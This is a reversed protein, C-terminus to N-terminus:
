SESWCECSWCRRSHCSECINFLHWRAVVSLRRIIVVAITDQVFHRCLQWSSQQWHWGSHRRWGGHSADGTCTHCCSLRTPCWVAVVLHDCHRRLLRVISECSTGCEAGRSDTAKCRCAVSEGSHFCPVDSCATVCHVSHGLILVFWDWIIFLNYQLWSILNSKKTLNFNCVLVTIDSPILYEICSRM